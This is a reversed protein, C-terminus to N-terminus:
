KAWASDESSGMSTSAVAYFGSLYVVAGIIAGMMMFQSTLYNFKTVSAALTFIIMGGMICIFIGPTKSDLEM